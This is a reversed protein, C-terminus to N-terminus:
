KCVGLPSLTVKTDDTTVSWFTRGPYAQCLDLDNESGKSRAWLIRESSFEAGNHVLENGPYHRELDYSVLVMHEGPEGALQQAVLSRANRFAFRTNMASSGTQRALSAVVVALCVAIVFVQEGRKRQEWVYRLGEAALLYVVVTAPAAYHLLNYHCLACAAATFVAVWVAIRLPPRSFSSLLGIFLPLTLVPGVYFFWNLLLRSSEIEALGAASKAEEIKYEEATVKMFQAFVPDTLPLDPNGKEWLFFPLPWYTRHNLVYPMEFANGTTQHDYFGIMVMGLMGIGAVPLLITRLQVGSIGGRVMQYGFYGLLPLSFVLGEYPRSTALILLATAFICALKTRGSDAHKGDLLRVVAGLALAGGLAAVSGGWYSNMWYSFVGIRSVALLGGILAWVPPVFAQLAWCVAGCMLATSLYVGIWPQHFLVQGLALLLGQAAPYVSHYTPNMNVHFTEFHKSLAPTPNALRGHAFTDAMLLYSYEDNIRPEPIGVIPLLLARAVLAVLIVFLVSRRNDLLLWDLWRPRTRTFSPDVLRIVLVVVIWIAALVGTEVASLRLGNIPQYNM